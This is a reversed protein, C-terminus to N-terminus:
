SPAIWFDGFITLEDAVGVAGMMKSYPKMGYHSQLIKFGGRLHLWGNNTELDSIVEIKKTKGHLTFNGKVSYEPLQRPSMTNRASIETIEFIAEPFHKVDLVEVGLMNDNVKKKTADDIESKMGIYQRAAETDAVFSQMDFVVRGKGVDAIRIDGSSLKGEVAHEHGVLGSKKVHIYVRSHELNLSGPEVKPSVAATGKADSSTVRASTKGSPPDVALLFAAPISLGIVGITLWRLPSRMMRAVAFRTDWDHNPVASWRKVRRLLVWLSLIM